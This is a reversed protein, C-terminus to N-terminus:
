ESLIGQSKGSGKQKERVLYLVREMIDACIRSSCHMCYKGGEGNFVM